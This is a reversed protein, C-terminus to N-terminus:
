VKTTLYTTEKQFQNKVDTVQNQKCKSPGFQFWNHTKGDQSCFKNSTAAYEKIFIPNRLMLIDQLYMKRNYIIVRTRGRHFKVMNNVLLCFILNQERCIGSIHYM